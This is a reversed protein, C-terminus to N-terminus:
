AAKRTPQRPQEPQVDAAIFLRGSARNVAVVEAWFRGDTAQVRLVQGVAIDTLKSLPLGAPAVAEAATLGLADARFRLAPYNRMDEFANDHITAM